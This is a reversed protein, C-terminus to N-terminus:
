FEVYGRPDVSNSKAINWLGEHIEFHLHKGFSHGTNGMYGLLQGQKVQEGTKVARNELHAYVTTYTEGGLQHTVFVCNGYTSSYYSRIVTGSAAAVVKTDATKDAIDIGAHLTGWRQGYESTVSGTTPKIFLEAEEKDQSPTQKNEPEVKPEQEEKKKPNKRAEIEKLIAKEQAEILDRVESIDLLDAEVEQQDAKLSAMAENKEEMKAQQEEKLAELKAQNEKLAALKKQLEKEKSAKEQQDRYHVELMRKDADLIATTAKAADIFDGFDEVGLLVDVYSIGRGQKQLTRLRDKIVKERKAIIKGADDIQVKLQTIENNITEMQPQLSRIDENVKAAEEDLKRIEDRIKQQQKDLTTKLKEKDKMEKEYKLQDKRVEELFDEITPKQKDAEAAAAQPLVGITVAALTILSFYRIGKVM